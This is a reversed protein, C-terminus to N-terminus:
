KLMENWWVVFHTMTILRNFPSKGWFNFGRNNFLLFFLTDTSQKQLHFNKSQSSNCWQFWSVSWNATQLASCLNLRPVTLLSWSFSPSTSAIVTCHSQTSLTRQVGLTVEDRKWPEKGPTTTQTFLALCSMYTGACESRLGPTIWKM